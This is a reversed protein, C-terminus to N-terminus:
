LNAVLTGLVLSRNRERDTWTLTVTVRRLELDVQEVMVRGVGNPLVKAPSDVLTTDVNTFSYTNTATPTTSDIVKYTYMQTATLNPYGIAKVAELEKQALSAAKMMLDTRSKSMTGAPMTAAVILLCAVAVFVAIQVEILSVARRKTM